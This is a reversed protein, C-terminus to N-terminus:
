QKNKTIEPVYWENFLRGMMNTLDVEDIADPDKLWTTLAATLGTFYITMAMANHASNEIGMNQMIFKHLKAIFSSRNSEGFVVLMRAKNKKM